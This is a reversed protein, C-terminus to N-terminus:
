EFLNKSDNGSVSNKRSFETEKNCLRPTISITRM